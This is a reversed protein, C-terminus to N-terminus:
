LSLQVMPNGLTVNENLQARQSRDLQDHPVVILTAFVWAIEDDERYTLHDALYQPEM